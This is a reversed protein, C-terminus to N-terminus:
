GVLHHTSLFSLVCYVFHSTKSFDWKLGQGWERPSHFPNRKAQM